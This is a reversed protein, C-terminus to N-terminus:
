LWIAPGTSSFDQIPTDQNEKRNRQSGLGEKTEPIRWKRMILSVISICICNLTMQVYVVVVVIGKNVMM